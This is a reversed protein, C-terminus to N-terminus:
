HAKGKRLHSFEAEHGLVISLGQGMFDCIRELPEFKLELYIQKRSNLELGGKVRESRKSKTFTSLSGIGQPEKCDSSVEKSREYSLTVMKLAVAEPNSFASATL